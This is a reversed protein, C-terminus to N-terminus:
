MIEVMMVLVLLRLVLRQREYFVVKDMQVEEMTGCGVFLETILDLLSPETLTGAFIAVTSGPPFLLQRRLGASFNAVQDSSLEKLTRRIKRRLQAKASTKSQM